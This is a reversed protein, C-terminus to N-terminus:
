PMQVDKKLSEHNEVLHQISTYQKFALDKVTPVEKQTPYSQSSNCQKEMNGNETGKHNYYQKKNGKISGRFNKTLNRELIKIM